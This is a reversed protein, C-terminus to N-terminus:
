AVVPLGGGSGSFALEPPQLTVLSSSTELRKTLTHYAERIEAPANWDTKTHRPVTPTGASGATPRPTDAAWEVLWRRREIRSALTSLALGRERALKAAAVERGHYILVTDSRMSHHHYVAPGADM